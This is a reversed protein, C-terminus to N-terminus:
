ELEQACLLSTRCIMWCAVIEEQVVNGQKHYVSITHDKHLCLSHCVINFLFTMIKNSVQRAQLIRLCSSPMKVLLLFYIKKWSAPKLYGLLELNKSKDVRISRSQTEYNREKGLQAEVWIYLLLSQSCCRRPLYLIRTILNQAQNEAGHTRCSESIFTETFSGYLTELM